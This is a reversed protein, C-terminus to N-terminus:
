QIPAIFNALEDALDGKFDGYGSDKYQEVLEDITRGTIVSYITLLNSIGPKNEVDFYIKGESDTVASKIKKKIRNIDDLLMIYGKDNDDSKSMKKTPDQLDMIRAGAKPIIPEPVVFFDGYRNNIRNAIDRTLEVHQKQDAGVPVYEADYLLIDGAMLAPYTYLGSTLGDTGQKQAKDKYQTMRNLEGIYTHCELMWGMQAHAPVESQIFITNKEPDLGCAIYIAAIDKIRKRLEQKDQPVTISHMDAIFCFLEHEEQLKIFQSIAGIYNGLTIGGSPKIGSVLRAM